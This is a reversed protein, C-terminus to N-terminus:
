IINEKIWNVIYEIPSDDKSPVILKAKKLLIDTANKVAFGYDAKEILDIDNM